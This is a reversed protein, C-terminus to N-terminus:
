NTVMLSCGTNFEKYWQQRQTQAALISGAINESVMKGTFHLLAKLGSLRYSFDMTTEIGTILKNLDANDSKIPSSTIQM